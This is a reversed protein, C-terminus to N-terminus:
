ATPKDSKVGAIRAAWWFVDLSRLVTAFVARRPPSLKLLLPFEFSGHQLVQSDSVRRSSQIRVRMRRTDDWNMFLRRWARLYAGSTGNIITSLFLALEFTLLGPALLLLTRLQYGTAVLRLRNYYQGFARKNGHRRVKVLAHAAPDHLSTFGALQGRYHLEGDDQWGHVYGTDFYGIERVIALDLLMIGGGINRRPRLDSNDALREGRSSGTSVAMFHLDNGSQYIVSNDEQDLLRPVVSFTGPRSLLTHLLQEVCGPSLVIDNDTLFAYPSTAARLGTSRVLALNATNREMAILRVDPYHDRVLECSGDTSGDDVVIIEAFPRSSAKLGDLTAAICDAGNYNVVVASVSVKGPDVVHTGQARCGCGDAPCKIGDAM